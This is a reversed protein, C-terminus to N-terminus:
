SVHEKPSQEAPEAPRHDAGGRRAPREHLRLWLTSSRPSCGPTSSCRTSRLRRAYAAVTEPMLERRADSTDPLFEMKTPQTLLSGGGHGTM